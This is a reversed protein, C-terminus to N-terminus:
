VSTMERMLHGIGDELGLDKRSLTEAIEDREQELKNSKSRTFQTIQSKKFGEIVYKCFREPWVIM